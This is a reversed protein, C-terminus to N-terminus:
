KDNYWLNQNNSKNTFIRQIFFLLYLEAFSSIVVMLIVGWSPIRFRSGIFFNFFMLATNVIAYNIFAWGMQAIAHRNNEKLRLGIIFDFISELFVLIAFIYFAYAYTQFHCYMFSVLIDLFQIVAVSLMLPRKIHITRLYGDLFIYINMLLLEVFVQFSTEIWAPKWSFGRISLRICEICMCAIVMKRIVSNWNTAM